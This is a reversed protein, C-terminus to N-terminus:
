KCSKQGTHRRKFVEGRKRREKMGDMCGNKMVLAIPHIGVLHDNNKNHVQERFPHWEVRLRSYAFEDQNSFYKRQRRHRSNVFRKM